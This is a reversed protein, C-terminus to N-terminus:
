VLRFQALVAFIRLQAILTGPWLVDVRNPNTANQEVILGAKFADANQVYGAAELERYQAILEARIMNPTVVGNAGALRQANSALKVRSYKSTIAGRMSRLVFALLFLTEVQLFSNDAAGFANKQYTTILNELRVTGDDDTTFTSIGGFLLTNRDSLVFRAPLAPAIVGSIALTQMPLGPDARLSNAATATVAAAWIYAPTPSANVGLVTEHPNNRAAGFTTLAGLTGARVAFVHGYIQQSWSWRGATDNLFDKLSDLSTSDTYPCAIFDFTQDGLNTLAATLVPAGAGNAMANVSFTLGAPVTDGGATGLFASNISIDNGAPGKNVATLSVTQASVTALVPLTEANILAALAAAVQAATQTPALPLSLRVGGIYLTWTGAATAAATIVISGTAATSGAADSLPLCWVDGFPDNARYAAVMAALMSSRGAVQAVDDVSQVIFPVNPAVTATSNIQGIVLARQVALATNARSNDVEAYFLPVRLNQPINKFAITM